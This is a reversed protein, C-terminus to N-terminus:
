ASKQETFVIDGQQDARVQLHKDKGFLIEDPIGKPFAPCVLKIDECHKCNWCYPIETM